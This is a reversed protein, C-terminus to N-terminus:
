LFKAYIRVICNCAGVIEYFRSEGLVEMIYSAKLLMWVTFAKPFCYISLFVRVIYRSSIINERLQRSNYLFIERVSFFLQFLRVQAHKSSICSATPQQSPKILLTHWRGCTALLQLCVEYNVTCSCPLRHWTICGCVWSIGFPM